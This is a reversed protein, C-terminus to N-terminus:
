EALEALKIPWRTSTYGVVFYMGNKSFFSRMRDKQERTPCLAVIRRAYAVAINRRLFPLNLCFREKDGDLEDPTSRLLRRLRSERQALEATLYVLRYEHLVEQIKSRVEGDLGAYESMRKEYDANTEKGTPPLSGRGPRNRRAPLPDDPRPFRVGQHRTEYGIRSYIGNRELFATMKARQENGDCLSVLLKAFRLSTARIRGYRMMLTATDDSEGPAAALLRMLRSRKEAVWVTEDTQRYAHLVQRAQATQAETLGVRAQMLAEYERNSEVRTRGELRGGEGAGGSSGTALVLAGAVIWLGSRWRM